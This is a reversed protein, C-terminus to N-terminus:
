NPLLSPDLTELNSVLAQCRLDMGREIEPSLHLGHQDFAIQKTVTSLSLGHSVM